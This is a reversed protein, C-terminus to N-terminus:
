YAGKEHSRTKKGKVPKTKSTSPLQTASDSIRSSKLREGMAKRQEDTLNKLKRKVPNYPMFPFLACNKSTCPLKGDQYYGCCDYCKAMVAQKLTLKENNLHNLLEQKGKALPMSEITEYTM